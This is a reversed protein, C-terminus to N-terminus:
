RGKVVGDIKAFQRKYAGGRILGGEWERNM